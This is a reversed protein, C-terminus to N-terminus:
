LFILRPRGGEVIGCAVTWNTTKSQTYQFPLLSEKGLFGVDMSWLGKGMTAIEPRHRHGHCVPMGQKIAHDISKSLYGHLYRVGEIDIYGRDSEILKVGKIRYIENPDYIEELEPLKDMIRKHMRIDHNGLLQVCKARPVAKKIDTWMGKAAKLGKIIDSKPTIGVSKSYKSFSYQDLLDGIQVVHTPKEQKILQLVKKLAKKDEFPFHTDSIVFVKAM